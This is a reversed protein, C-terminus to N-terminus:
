LTNVIKFRFHLNCHPIDQRYIYQRPIIDQPICIDQQIDQQYTRLIDRLIDPPPTDQQHPLTTRLDLNNGLINDLMVTALIDPLFITSDQRFISDRREELFGELFERVLIGLIGLIFERRREWMRKFLLLLRRRVARRITSIPSKRVVGLRKKRLKRQQQAQRLTILQQRPTNVLLQQILVRIYTGRIM